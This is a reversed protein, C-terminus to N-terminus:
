SNPTDLLPFRQHVRSLFQLGTGLHQELTIAYAKVPFHEPTVEM